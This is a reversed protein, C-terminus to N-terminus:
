NREKQKKICMFKTKDISFEWLKEEEKESCNMMVAQVFRKSGAGNIDDVFTVAQIAVSPYIVEREKLGVNIKGTSACCLKPGFVTGQKVIEEVTIPNTKGTLTIKVAPFIIHEGPKNILSDQFDIIEM